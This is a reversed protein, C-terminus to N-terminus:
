WARMKKRKAIIGGGRYIQLLRKIKEVRQYRSNVGM